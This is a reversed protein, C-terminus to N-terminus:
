TLKQQGEVQRAGAAALSRLCQAAAAKGTGTAKRSCLGLNAPERGRVQRTELQQLPALVDSIAHLIARSM